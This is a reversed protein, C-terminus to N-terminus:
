RSARDLEACSTPPPLRVKEKYEPIGERLADEDDSSSSSSSTVDKGEDRARKRREKEKREREKVEEESCDVIGVDPGADRHFKTTDVLEGNKAWVLLGQENVDVKYNRRQEANLYSIREKDLRTRPCQELDLDKGDGQDLWQFFNQDTDSENWAKHYWKLNTGYRHKDDVIELWYRYDCLPTLPRQSSM